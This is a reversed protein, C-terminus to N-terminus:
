KNILGFQKQSLYDVKIVKFLGRKYRSYGGVKYSIAVFGNRADGFPSYVQFKFAERVNPYEINQKLAYFGAVNLPWTDKLMSQIDPWQEIPIKILPDM